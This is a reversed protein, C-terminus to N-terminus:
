NSPSGAIQTCSKFLMFHCIVNFSFIQDNNCNAMKNVHDCQMANCLRGFMICLTIFTSARAITENYHENTNTSWLVNFVGVLQQQEYQGFNFKKTITSSRVM